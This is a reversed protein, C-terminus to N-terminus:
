AEGPHAALGLRFGVIFRRCRREFARRKATNVLEAAEIRQALPRGDPEIDDREDM